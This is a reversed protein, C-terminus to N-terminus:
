KGVCFQSFIHDLLSHGGTIGLLREIAMMCENLCGAAVDHGLGGDIADAADKLRAIATRIEGVQRASANLGAELTGSGAISSVILDKLQDLGTGHRASIRLIGSGPLAESLLEEATRGNEDRGFPLDSKNLAVIHDLEAIRCAMALDFDDPASSGDVVWVRTDAEKFAAEARAVGIAEVEDSPVGGLGATDILRIPVGRWTLVDEILDRTTGPISTVIARSERLLANLLSSKGVNPRGVIAVRIGERLLCGASCRDLLDELSQILAQISQVVEEDERLPTDEEPFDLSVEMQGLLDLIESHIDITFETLEGRLTRTAAKLAEDSRARIIGLVAEAQALDIRGNLFARKTFEGPEALRAGRCILLELCKSAVLTGGHTHIEVVDEGTYSRPAAFWVVLVQDVGEGKEDLLYGNSMRRPPMEKLTNKKLSLVGGAMELSDPGSLRVIAIGAEGRATAIAAITEVRKIAGNRRM